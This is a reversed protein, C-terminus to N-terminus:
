GTQTTNIFFILALIIVRFFFWIMFSGEFLQLWYSSEPNEFISKRIKLMFTGFFEFLYSLYILIFCKGIEELLSFLVPPFTFGKPPVYIFFLYQGVIILFIYFACKVGIELNFSYDKKKKEYFVEDLIETSEDM